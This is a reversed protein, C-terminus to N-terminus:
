SNYTAGVSTSYWPQYTYQGPSYTTEETVETEEKVKGKADYKRTITRKTVKTVTKSAPPWGYTYQPTIPTVCHASKSDNIAM